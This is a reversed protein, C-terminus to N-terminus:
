SYINLLAFLYIWLVGIFHWYTTCLNIRLMNKSHVRFRLSSILTAAVFIVGGIVHLAHIGTLVYFFSGSIPSVMRTGSNALGTFYVSEAILAKYGAYQSFLFALGLVLTISLAIRNQMLENRKAAFYSWQLSISSLVILVTSVTFNVPIHFHVWSGNAQADPWQVIIASSFAAFLMTVTVLFLWLTFKVPHVNYQTHQQAQPQYTEIVAM